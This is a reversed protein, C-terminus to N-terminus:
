SRRGEQIETRLLAGGQNDTGTLFAGGGWWEATVLPRIVLFVLRRFVEKRDLLPILQNEAAQELFLIAKLPASASSVETIDGHSWTGHIRFGKSHRRVIIRDDCLIEGTDRLLNTITSKGAESHGAFLLGQGEFIM